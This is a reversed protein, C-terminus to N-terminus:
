KIVDRLCQVLVLPKSNIKHLTFYPKQIAGFSRFYKEIDEIMSGEFDFKRGNKLAFKISEFQVIDMGGLDKKNPDIAGMLYYVTSDDYVLFNAAIVEDQYKAFYMKVANNEKCKNYLRKVFEFNYPIKINKRKFTMENLQYFKEIDDIEIVQIGLKLAKKKRRRIDSEFNKELDDISMNEIVYTYRTTQKFGKWYFPLWNTMNYHMNMNLYDFKPLNDIFYNMIEKEWSLKKYYKQNEPYKIYPGLFQTLKPMTILTLGYRKKKIYVFSGWIDGGKEYLIVDWEMSNECVSDLWYSQMFIPLREKRAFELYKQKSSRNDLIIKAYNKQAKELTFKGIKKFSSLYVKDQNKTFIQLLIKKLDEKDRPKSLYGDKKDVILGDIGWGKAGIVICGSAMAELYALGFTEPSSPMIFVDSKKMLKICEKRSLFGLFKIRDELSYQKVLKKLNSKEEGDGVIIYEWEYNKLESLAEIVIDLNKLKQLLCVSILRKKIPRDEKTRNVILNSEVGSYVIDKVVDINKKLLQKQLAWSRTYVNKANKIIKIQKDIHGIDSNHLIYIYPINFLQNLKLALQGGRYMHAVILDVDRLHQSFYEKDKKTLYVGLKPIYIFSKTEISINDIINIINQEDFKLKRFNLKPIPRLVKVIEVGYRNLGKVLDHIAWSTEKVSHTKDKPYLNTILLIKM